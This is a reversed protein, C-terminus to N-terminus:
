FEFSLDPKELTQRWEEHHRCAKRMEYLSRGIIVRDSNNISIGMGIKVLVQLAYHRAANSLETIERLILGNGSPILYDNVNDTGLRVEVGAKLMELVRAISNHLPAKENRLQRMSLAASPCCIVGINYQVLKFVLRSFKEAKYGSPSIVHVLWLRPNEGGTFWDFADPTLSELCEVVRISGREYRSNMQDVHLHLPKKHRYALDLMLGAHRKFGIREPHDDKEPLGVIFDARPAAEEMLRLRDPNDKPNKFGFLAYCAVKLDITDAYEAKLQLAVDMARTDIDPTTDTVGWMERTGIKVARDIQKKMRAYLSEEAYAPGEHLYGTLDQKASLPLDAIEHINVGDHWYEARLTFARDLHIHGDVWGTVVRRRRYDHIGTVAMKAAHAEWPGLFWENDTIWKLIEAKNIM